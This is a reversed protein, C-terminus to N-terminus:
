LNALVQDLRQRIRARQTMRVEIRALFIVCAVLPAVVFTMWLGAGLMTSGAAYCHGTISELMFAQLPLRHAIVQDRYVQLATFGGNELLMWKAQAEYAGSGLILYFGLMFVISFVLMVNWSAIGRVLANVGRDFAAAYKFMLASTLTLRFM